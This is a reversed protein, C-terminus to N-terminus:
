EAGVTVDRLANLDVSDLMEDVASQLQEREGESLHPRQKQRYRLQDVADFCDWCLPMEVHGLPPSMGREERFHEVWRSPPHFSHQPDDEDCLSCIGSM